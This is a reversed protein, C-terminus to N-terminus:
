ASSYILYFVFSQGARLRIHASPGGGQAGKVPTEARFGDRATGGLSGAQCCGAEGQLHLFSGGEPYAGPSAGCYWDRLAAQWTSLRPRPRHLCRDSPTAKLASALGRPRAM